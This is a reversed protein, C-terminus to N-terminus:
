ADFSSIISFNPLKFIKGTRGLYNNFIVTCRDETVIPGSSIDGIFNVSGLM